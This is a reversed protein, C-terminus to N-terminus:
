KSDPIEKWGTKEKLFRNLADGLPRIEKPNGSKVTVEKAKEGQRIFFRYGPLDPIGNDYEDQLAFFDVEQAAGILKNQEAETIYAYSASDQVGYKMPTYVILGSNYIETIDIPCAGFCANRQYRLILSDPYNAAQDEAKQYFTKKTLPQAAEQKKGEEGCSPAMLPSALLLLLSYKLLKM